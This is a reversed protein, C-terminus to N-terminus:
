NGLFKVASKGDNYIYYGDRDYVLRSRRNMTDSVLVDVGLKRALAECEHLLKNSMGKGRYKPEVGMNVVAFVYRQERGRIGTPKLVPVNQMRLYGDIFGINGIQKKRDRTLGAEQETIRSKSEPMLDGLCVRYFKANYVPEGFRLVHVPHEDEKTKKTRKM